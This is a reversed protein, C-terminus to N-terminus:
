IVEQKISVTGICWKGANIIWMIPHLPQQEYPNVKPYTCGVIGVNKAFCMDSGDLNWTHMENTPTRMYVDSAFMAMGDM